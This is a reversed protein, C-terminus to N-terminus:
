PKSAEPDAFEIEDRKIVSLRAQWNPFLWYSLPSALGLQPDSHFVWAAGYAHGPHRPRGTQVSVLVRLPHRLSQLNPTDIRTLRGAGAYGKLAISDAQAKSQAEGNQWAVDTPMQEPTDVTHGEADSEQKATRRESWAIAILEYQDGCTPLL